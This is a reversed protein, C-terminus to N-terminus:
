RRGASATVVSKVSGSPTLSYSYMSAPNFAGGPNSSNAIAGGLLVPNVVRVFNGSDELWVGAARISDVTYADFVDNESVLQSGISGGAGADRRVQIGFQDYEIVNNFSHLKGSMLPHRQSTGHYWNHHATINFLHNTSTGSGDGILMVFELTNLPGGLDFRSWSITGYVGSSPALTIDIYEDGADAMTLHDFWFNSAGGRVRLLDNWGAGAAHTLTLNELIINSSDAGNMHMGAGTVEVRRGRGDITLNAGLEINSSLRITYDGDFVIWANGRTAVDRLSGPGSDNGNTIHIVCASSGGTANRGFGVRESLLGLRTGPSECGTPTATVTPTPTPSPSATPSPTPTSSVAPSSTPTPTPTPTQTATPTPTPAPVSGGGGGSSSAPASGGTGSTQGSGERNLSTRRAAVSQEAAPGEVTLAVFAPAISTDDARRRMIVPLEGRMRSVADVNVRAPAGPIYVFFRGLSNDFIALSEVKFPLSRTLTEPDSLDAVGLTLGGPPPVYLLPLARQAHQGDPLQALAVPSGSVNLAAMMLLGIVAVAALPIRYRM